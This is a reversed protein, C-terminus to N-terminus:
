LEHDGLAIVLWQADSALDQLHWGSFADNFVVTLMFNANLECSAKTILHSEKCGILLDSLLQLHV